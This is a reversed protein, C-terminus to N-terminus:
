SLINQIEEKDLVEKKLLADAMKNLLEKKETLMEKTERYCKDIIEKIEEDIMKELHESRRELGASQGLFGPTSRNVLSYNPLKESMGYVVIMNKALQAVRELDNSAGTSVENFIIDEAARGGLLGKIKGIIESKTLLYRDELPMQLTYGLAGMGRPVISVKQVQDAGPTFYGTIAHGSEHYAVIRREKENILKNKKELGAIIREIAAEFDSQTVEDRNNRAALIAAENCVNAIEAGAFGPTQAALQKLDVKSSLKLKRTHVKFIAERGKMDPRDVLVQRDFRGPRLLAPDLVEPRNTAGIIIVGVGSDFGDMEVLLQNLTNEREDYGGGYALNNGRSKGIADIEDIFIICPAAAKAQRFLDRVRAAGLGVFMEVFDSGSLNFFPVGAEGAVARALLTKGTGPPGVLLLGKPLKGGLATYKKPNKLFDVIEKVEEVAEDVGAVDSFKVQNEPREAVIKAKNKGFDLMPNNGMRKFIFGWLAFLFIFPFIWNLFFNRLSNSEFRGEFNVNAAMLKPLLEPDPLEPIRSVIFQRAVQREISPVRVRWPASPAHTIAKEEEEVGEIKFEGIIRDNFIVIQSVKGSDIANLFDRYSLRVNGPRDPFLLLQLLIILMTITLFYIFSFKETKKM